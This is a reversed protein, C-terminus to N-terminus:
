YSISTALIIHLLHVYFRLHMLELAYVQMRLQSMSSVELDETTFYVHMRLITCIDICAVNYAASTFATYTPLFCVHKASLFAIVLKLAIVPVYHTCIHIHMANICQM